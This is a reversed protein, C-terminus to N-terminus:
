LDEGCKFCISIPPMPETIVKYRSIDKLMLEHQTRLQLLELRLRKVDAPMSLLIKAQTVTLNKYIHDIEGELSPKDHTM